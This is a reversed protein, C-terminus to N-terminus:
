SGGIGSKLCLSCTVPGACNEFNAKRQGRPRCWTVKGVQWEAGVVTPAWHVTANNLSKVTKWRAEGM